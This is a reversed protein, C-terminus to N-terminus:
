RPQVSGPALARRAGAGGQLDIAAHLIAPWLLSGTGVYLIGMVTGTLGTKVVGGAGQYLHFLGFAAGALLAAPWAGAYAALYWILYGRYVIEECIGATVALRRFAAAERDTRPLFDAVADMQSRLAALGDEDLRTIARWQAFLFALGLMTVAAGAMSPAGAPLSFGLLAAPRGGLWWILLVIAAISWQMIMTSRYERVRVGDDAGSRLRRLMRRYEWAGRLPLVLILAAVLLHDAWGPLPM